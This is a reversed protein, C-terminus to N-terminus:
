ARPEHQGPPMTHYTTRGITMLFVCDDIAEVDHRVDPELALLQGASLEATGEPLRLRLSGELAHVSVPGSARHEELRGGAKLAMLVIRLDPEKVLTRGTAAGAKYGPQARLDELEAALNFTLVPAALARGQREAAQTPPIPSDHVQDDPM